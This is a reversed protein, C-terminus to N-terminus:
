RERGTGRRHRRIVRGTEGWEVDNNDVEGQDNAFALAASAVDDFIEPSDVGGYLPVNIPITSLLHGDRDFIYCHHANDQDIYHCAITLDGSYRLAKNSGGYQNHDGRRMGRM